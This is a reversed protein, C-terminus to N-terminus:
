PRGGEKPEAPAKKNLADKIKAIFDEVQKLEGHKEGGWWSHAYREFSKWSDGRKIPTWSKPFDADEAEFPMPCSCGSDTAYYLIGTEKSRVVRLEDYEYSGTSRDIGAIYEQSM